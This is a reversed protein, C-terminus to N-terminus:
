KGSLIVGLVDRSRVTMLSLRNNLESAPATWKRYLTEIQAQKGEISLPAFDPLGGLDQSVLGIIDLDKSKMEEEFYLECVMGDIVQEFYQAKYDRPSQKKIFSIALVLYDFLNENKPKPIPLNELFAKKYRYKGVLDGGAYFSTFLFTVPKSNLMATLYKIHEGTIFFVTAEPYYGETDYYFQPESVIESFVIKPKFFEGYYAVVDQLEYWQYQGAKRGEEEGNNRPKLDDYYELLHRKVFPYSDIQIGRRTFIMWRSDFNNYYRRVDRGRLIPKIIEENKPDSKILDTKQSQNIIFADNFGTLIGRFFEIKWEKLPIGIREAQKKIIISKDAVVAWIDSTYHPTHIKNFNFYEEIDLSNLWLDEEFQVSQTIKENHTKELLIINSHVVASEFIMTQGFDILILPNSKEIFFQRMSKGYSARMWKNSTIYVLLGKNKLLQVGKEYFICYLDGSNELTKFKQQKFLNRDAESLKSISIYPPNGIVVDFGTKINFMWDADFFPASANQDFPNWDALQETQGGMGLTDLKNKIDTRIKEDQERFRKKDAHRKASFIRHRLKERQKMLDDVAMKALNANDLGILTNAAVFKTELNPLALVGRNEVGETNEVKQDCVLSIFFRLKAIQVAIPQIDVGYICNEILYLKRGYDLENKDFAKDIAKIAEDRVNSDEINEVNQLQREKWLTNNPDLKHLLSVLRHLIGMPFAGSGCAPDLIKCTDIAKILDQVDNTNTFPQTEDNAFLARLYKDLNDERGEWRSANPKTELSFQGKKNTQEGFLAIQQKGLELTGVESQLMANKLYALLSEDVMYNVIERPTYFSGTQKRASTKTEPNYSALLNEFIRGLLEPDLAVEEELPTNEAVTFKYDNLIHIIGKVTYKKNKTGYDDNLDNISLPTRQFFLFNPIHTQRTPKDSFGDIVGADGKREDDLCEFLGGNLFPIDAFLQTAKEATKFHKKYRYVNKINFDNNKGQFAADDRFRRQTMEQNLTAFFLNQLVARYYISDKSADPTLSDFKLTDAALEDIDFLTDSVLKKEKLFWTFILRTILRIVNNARHTKLKEEDGDTPENPFSVNRIAWFYWNSLDEYFRKNLISVNLERQWHAYLEEFTNVAKKGSRQIAMEQLIRLHGAHTKGDRVDVDRLLSMKGIKDGAMDSRKYALRECVAVSIFHHCYRFVLVVPQDPFERNFARALDFLQTRTPMIEEGETNLREIEIGFVMIFDYNRGRINQLRPTNSSIGEFADDSVTGLWYVDSTYDDFTSKHNNELIDSISAPAEGTLVVPVDLDKFLKELATNLRGNQFYSLTRLM